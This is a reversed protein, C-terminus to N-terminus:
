KRTEKLIARALKRLKKRGLNVAEYNVSVMLGGDEYAIVRLRDGDNDVHELERDGFQDTKFKLPM